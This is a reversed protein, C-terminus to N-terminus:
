DGATEDFASCEPTSANALDQLEDCTLSQLSTMCAVASDYRPQGEEIRPVRQWIPDCVTDVASAAPADPDDLPYTGVYRELACSKLTDCLGRAADELADAAALAPAALTLSLALLTASRIVTDNRQRLPFLAALM